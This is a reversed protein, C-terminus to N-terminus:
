DIEDKCPPGDSRTAAAKACSTARPDPNKWHGADEDELMLHESLAHLTERFSGHRGCSDQFM